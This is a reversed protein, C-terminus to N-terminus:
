SQKKFHWKFLIVQSILLFVHFISFLCAMGIERWQNLFYPSILLTLFLFFLNLYASHKVVKKELWIPNYFQYMMYGPVSASIILFLESTGEFSGFYSTKTLFKLIFFVAIVAVLSLLLTGRLLKDFQKQRQAIGVDSMYASVRINATTSLLFILNIVQLAFNVRGIEAKELYWGSLVVLMLPYSNFALYDLHPTISGYFTKVLHKRSFLEFSPKVVYLLFGIEFLVGGSLIVAYFFIFRSLDKIELFLFVILFSLMLFRTVLIVTEQLPTKLFAAFISNGNINWVYYISTISISLLIKWDLIKQASESMVGFLLGVLCTLIFAYLNLVLYSILYNQKLHEQKYTEVLFTRGFNFSFFLGLTAFISGGYSIIGRGESGFLKASVLFVMLGSFALLGRVLM